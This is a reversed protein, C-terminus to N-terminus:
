RSGRAAARTCGLCAWPWDSPVARAASASDYPPVEGVGNAIWESTTARDAAERDVEYAWYVAQVNTQLSLQQSIKALQGAQHHLFENAAQLAEINGDAAAADAALGELIDQSPISNWSIRNLANLSYRLTDLTRRNRHEFIELWDDELIPEYGPFTEAFQADIDYLTHGLSEGYQIIDNVAAALGVLNQFSLEDFRELNKVMTAYRQYDNYLQMYKQYIEYAQQIVQLANEIWNLADYVAFQAEARKPTAVSTMVTLCVFAAVTRKLRRM